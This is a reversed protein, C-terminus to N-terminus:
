CDAVATGSIPCCPCCTEKSPSTQSGQLLASMGRLNGLIPRVCYEVAFQLLKESADSGSGGPPKGGKSGLATRHMAKNASILKPKRVFHMSLLELLPLSEINCSIVCGMPAQMGDEKSRNNADPRVYRSRPGM